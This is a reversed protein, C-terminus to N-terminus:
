ARLFDMMPAAASLNRSVIELFTETGYGRIVGRKMFAEVKETADEGYERNFQRLIRERSMGPTQGMLQILYQAMIEMGNRSVTSWADIRSDRFVLKAHTDHLKVPVPKSSEDFLVYDISKDSILISVQLQLAPSYTRALDPSPFGTSSISTNGGQSPPFM